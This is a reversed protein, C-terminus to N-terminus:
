LDKEHAHWHRVRSVGPRRASSSIQLDSRYFFCGTTARVPWWISRTEYQKGALTVGLDLNDIFVRKGYYSFQPIVVLPIDRRPRASQDQRRRGLTV